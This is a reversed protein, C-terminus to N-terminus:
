DKRVFKLDCKQKCTTGPVVVHEATVFFHENWQIGSGMNFNGKGDDSYVLHFGKNDVGKSTVGKEYASASQERIRQQAIADQGNPLTEPNIAEHILSDLATGLQHSANWNKHKDIIGEI